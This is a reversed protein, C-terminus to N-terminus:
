QYNPFDFATHWLWVRRTFVVSTCIWFARLHQIWVSWALVRFWVLWPRIRIKKKYNKSSIQKNTLFDCCVVCLILRFNTGFVCEHTEWYCEQQYFRCKFDYEIHQIALWFGIRLNKKYNKTSIQQNTVCDFAAILNSFSFFASYLFPCFLFLLSLSYLSLILFIFLLYSLSIFNLSSYFFSSLSLNFSVPTSLFFFLFIATDM